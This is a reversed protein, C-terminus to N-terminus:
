DLINCYAGRGGARECASQGAGRGRGGAYNNSSDNNNNNNTTTTTRIIM